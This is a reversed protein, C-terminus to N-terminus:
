SHLAQPTLNEVGAVYIMRGKMQQCVAERIYGRSIGLYAINQYTVAKRLSREWLRAEQVSIEGGRLVRRLKQMLIGSYNSFRPVVFM